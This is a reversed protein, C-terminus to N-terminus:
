PRFSTGRKKCASEYDELYTREEVTLASLDTLRPDFGIYNLPRSRLFGEHEPHAEYVVVNELRVGGFGALYIGPEISSVQGARLPLKSTPALGVGPEHVHVGVGHGTGHAYDFGAAYIPARCRADLYAGCTGEPFIAMMGQLLGKLVLTYISKQRESAEATAGGALFTRTIDTAFGGEYLAGSDLLLLDNPRAVNSAQPNSFHILASNAGVAAITQFSLDRAGEEEYHRNARDYFSLEDVEEGAAFRDWVWRQTRAIARCSRTNSEIMHDLEAATKLTKTAVVPNSICVLRCDPRAKKIRRLFAATVQSEDYLITAISQFEPRLFIAEPRERHFHVQPSAGEFGAHFVSEDVTLEVSKATAFGQAAFSSQYLFHYGRGESLWAIDDLAALLIATRSPEEVDAFVLDLKEELSRGSISSDIFQLAKEHRIAARSLAEALEGDDLSLSTEGAAEIAKALVHSVRDGEYGVRGSTAIDTMLAASLMTGLRIKVVEILAEDVEEDAQLHYRGDVYLKARGTALVLMLATSGTFRSLYYRHNDLRPTYENLHCDASTVVLADLGKDRMLQRACALNKAVAEPAIEFEPEAAPWSEM